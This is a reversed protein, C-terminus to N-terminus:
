APRRTDARTAPLALTFTPHPAARTVELRAGHAEALSRALALGIGHGAAHESRRTFIAGVDGEIGAGEDSVDVVVGAGARRAAVTVTGAGHVEANDVLVNLIERLVDGPCAAPPLDEAVESRLRRGKAALPGHWRDTVEICIGGVGCTADHTAEGDRAVALLTSVTSQLREVDGVAGEIAAVPDAGPTIIASELALRLSTLPTNLQHSVDAAFAREAAVLDGLRRATHNLADATRDVESIGSPQLRVTFDGDGLRAALAAIDEVPAVLRSSQWWGVAGALAVAGVALVAMLLWSAHTQDVVVDWPVAARAAGVVQEETQLPVAVALWEHDHHDRVRGRLASFIEPGGRAPGVGVVRRGSEDYLALQVRAPARPLEVPDDGHLGTAPVSGAARTAERELRTVERGRYLRAAALGLPVGFLVVALATVLVM